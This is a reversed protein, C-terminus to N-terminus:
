VCEGRFYRFFFQDSWASCGCANCARARAYFDGNADGVCPRGPTLDAIIGPFAYDDPTNLWSVQPPRAQVQTHTAGDVAETRITHQGGCRATQINIWPTRPPVTCAARVPGCPIQEEVALGVQQPVGDVISIVRASITPTPTTLPLSIATIRVESGDMFPFFSVVGDVLCDTDSNVRLQIHRLNSLQGLDRTLRAVTALNVNAASLAELLRFAEDCRMSANPDLIESSESCSITVAAHAPSPSMAIGAILILVALGGIRAKTAHACSSVERSEQLLRPDQFRQM